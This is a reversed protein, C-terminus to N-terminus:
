SEGAVYDPDAPCNEDHDIGCDVCQGPVFEQNRSAAFMSPEVFTHSWRQVWDDLLAQLEDDAAAIVDAGGVRDPETRDGDFLDGAEFYQEEILRPASLRIGQQMAEIVYGREHELAEIAAERTKFPGNNFWEDDSGSWWLWAPEKPEPPTPFDPLPLDNALQVFRPAGDLRETIADRMARAGMRFAGLENGASRAILEAASRLANMACLHLPAGSAGLESRVGNAEAITVHLSKDPERFLNFTALHKM